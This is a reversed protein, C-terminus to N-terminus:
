DLLVDFIDGSKSVKLYKIYKKALEYIKYVVKKIWMEAKRLMNASEYLRGVTDM